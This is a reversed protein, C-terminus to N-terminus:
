TCFVTVYQTSVKKIAQEYTREFEARRLHAIPDMTSTENKVNSPDQRSIYDGTLTILDVKEGRLKEALRSQNEGFM